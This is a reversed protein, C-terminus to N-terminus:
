FRKAPYSTIITGLQAYEDFQKRTIFGERWWIDFVQRNHNYMNLVWNKYLSGTVMYGIAMQTVAIMCNYMSQASLYQTPPM